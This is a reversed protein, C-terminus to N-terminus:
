YQLKKSVCIAVGSFLIKQFLSMTSMPSQWLRFCIFKFRSIVVLVCFIFLFLIFFFVTHEINRTLINNMVTFTPKDIAVDVFVTSTKNNTNTFNNNIITEKQNGEKTLSARLQNSQTTSSDTSPLRDYPLQHQKKAKPVRNQSISRIPRNSLTIGDGCFHIQNSMIEGRSQTRAFIAVRSNLIVLLDNLDLDL